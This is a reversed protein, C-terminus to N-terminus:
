EHTRKEVASTIIMAATIIFFFVQLFQLNANQYKLMGTERHFYGRDKSVISYTNWICAIDCDHVRMKTLLHSM